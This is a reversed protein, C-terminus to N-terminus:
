AAMKRASSFPIKTVHVRLSPCWVCVFLVSATCVISMGVCLVVVHTELVDTFLAVSFSMPRSVTIEKLRAANPNLIFIEIKSIKSSQSVASWECSRREKSTKKEKPRKRTTTTMILMHRTM